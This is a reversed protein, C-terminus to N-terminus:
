NQSGTVVVPGVCKGTKTCKGNQIFRLHGVLKQCPKGVQLTNCATQPVYKNNKCAVVQGGGCLGSDECPLFNQGFGTCGVGQVCHDECTNPNGDDCPQNDSSCGLDVWVGEFCELTQVGGCKPQFGCPFSTSSGEPACPEGPMPEPEQGAVAAGTGGGQLLMVSALIGVVAVILVIVMGSAKKYM